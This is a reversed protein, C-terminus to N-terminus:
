FIHVLFCTYLAFHKKETLSPNSLKEQQKIWLLAKPSLQCNKHALKWEMEDV